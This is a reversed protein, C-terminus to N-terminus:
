KPRFGGRVYQMVAQHKQVVKAYRSSPNICLALDLCKALTKLSGLHESLVSVYGCGLYCCNHTFVPCSFILASMRVM